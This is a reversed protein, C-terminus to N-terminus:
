GHLVTPPSKRCTLLSIVARRISRNSCYLVPNLASSICAMLSITWYVWSPVLIDGSSLIPVTGISPSWSITFFLLVYGITRFARFNRRTFVHAKPRTNLTHTVDRNQTRSDITHIVYDSQRTSLTPTVEPDSQRTSLTPTVGSDTTRTRSILTVDSNLPLRGGTLVFTPNTECIGKSTSAQLVHDSDCLLTVAIGNCKVKGGSEVGDEVTGRAQDNGSSGGGEAGCVGCLRRYIKRRVMGRLYGGVHDTNDTNNTENLKENSNKAFRGKRKHFQQIKWLVIFYFVYTASFTGYFLTSTFVVQAPKKFPSGCHLNYIFCQESDANFDWLFMDPIFIFVLPVGWSLSIMVYGSTVTLQRYLLPRCVAVLRDLSMSFVHLVSVACLVNNINVRLSCLVSGFTWKGRNLLEISELPMISAGLLLDSFALSTMLLKTLCSNNNNKMSSDLPKSGRRKSQIMAIIVVLNAAVTFTAIVVCFATLSSYVGDDSHVQHQQALYVSFNLCDLLSM